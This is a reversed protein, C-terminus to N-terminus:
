CGSFGTDGSSSVDSHRLLLKEFITGFHIAFTNCYHRGSKGTLHPCGGVRALTAITLMYAKYKPGYYEGQTTHVLVLGFLFSGQVAKVIM